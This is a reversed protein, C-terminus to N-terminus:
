KQHSNALQPEQGDHTLHAFSGLPLKGGFKLVIPPKQLKKCEHDLSTHEAVGNALSNVTM